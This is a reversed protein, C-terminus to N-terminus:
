KDAKETTKKPTYKRKKQYIYEEIDIQHYEKEIDAVEQMRKYMRMFVVNFSNYRSGSNRFRVSISKRTHFDRDYGDIYPQFGFVVEFSNRQKIIKLYNAVSQHTEDSYWTITKEKANYLSNYNGFNRKKYLEEKEKIEEYMDGYYIKKEKRTKIYFPFKYEGHIDLSKIDNFLMEFQQYIIYNEKTIVFKNDKEVNKSDLAWYLDLNGCFMICLRKDNEELFIHPGFETETKIIRM